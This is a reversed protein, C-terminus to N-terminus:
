FLHPLRHNFGAFLRTSVSQHLDLRQSQPGFQQRSDDRACAGNDGIGRAEEQLHKSIAV